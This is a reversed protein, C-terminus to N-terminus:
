PAGLTQFFPWIAWAGFPALGIAWAWKTPAPVNRDAPIEGRAVAGRVAAKGWVIWCLAAAPLAIFAAFLGFVVYFLPQLDQPVDLFAFFSAAVVLPTGLWIAFSLLFTQTYPTRAAHHM